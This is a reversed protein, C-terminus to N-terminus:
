MLTKKLTNKIEHIKMTKENLKDKYAMIKEQLKQLNEESTEEEEENELEMIMNEDEEDEEDPVEENMDYDEEIKLSKRSEAVPIKKEESKVKEDSKLIDNSKNDKTESGPVERDNITSFSSHGQLSQNSQYFSNSQNQAPSLTKKDNPQEAHMSMIAYLDNTPRYIANKMQNAFKRAEINQLRIQQLEKELREQEERKKKEKEMLILQRKDIGEHEDHKEPKDHKDAVVGESHSVFNEASFKRIKPAEHKITSKDDENLGDKSAMVNPVKRFLNDHIVERSYSEKSPM